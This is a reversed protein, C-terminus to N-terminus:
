QCERKKFLRAPRHAKGDTWHDTEIIKDNLVRRFAQVERGLLLEYVTQLEKVTFLENVLHFGADTYMIKNKIRNLADAIIMRHDFALSTIRVSPDKVSLFSLKDSEWQSASSEIWFWEAEKSARESNLLIKEKPALAIYGISIVRGRIDRNVDDGYSYLQELYIDDLGVKERLKRKACELLPEDYNVFGAPLAWGGKYPEEDRKVLLVQLGKEAVKRNNTLPKNDTTLVVVDTAVSMRDHTSFDRKM